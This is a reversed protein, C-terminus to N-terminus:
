SVEFEVEDFDCVPRYGIKQYISNSTPNALDTFLACSQWGEDLLRQSLAAVCASAYGRGRLAPPTYVLNVCISTIKPRTKAAMSVPRGDLEWVFIEENRLRHLATERTDSQPASPLAEAFFECAWQAVIEADAHTAVRFHGPVPRAPIVQRLEYIRERMAVRTGVGTHAAWARTFQEALPTRGSVARVKWDHALLDRIVLDFAAEVKTAFEDARYLTLPYPPTMLAAMVLEDRLDDVTALYPPTGGSEPSAALRLAIGLILNNAIEDEQLAAQTRALFEGATQHTTLQM